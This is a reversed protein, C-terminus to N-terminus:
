LSTAEAAHTQLWSDRPEPLPYGPYPKLGVGAATAAALLIYPEQCLANSVQEASWKRNKMLWTEAKQLGKTGLQLLEIWPYPESPYPVATPGAVYSRVVEDELGREELWALSQELGEVGQLLLFPRHRIREALAHRGFGVAWDQNWLFEELWQLTEHMEEVDANFLAPDTLAAEAWFEKSPMLEEMLFDLNSKVKEKSADKPLRLVGSELGLEEELFGSATRPKKSVKQASATKRKSVSPTKTMAPEEPVGDSEKLRAILDVKRGGVKLGRSSLLEKLEVVTLTSYDIEKSTKSTPLARSGTSPSAEEDMDEEPEEPEELEEDLDEELDEVDREEQVPDLEEDVLVADKPLSWSTEMTVENYYYSAGDDSRVARWQGASADAKAEAPPDWSTEGTEQNWYYCSKISGAPAEVLTWPAPPEKPRARLVM